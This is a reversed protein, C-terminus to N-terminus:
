NRESLRDRETQEEDGVFSVLAGHAGITPNLSGDHLVRFIEVYNAGKDIWSKQLDLAHEIDDACLESRRGNKEIRVVFDVSFDQTRLALRDASSAFM